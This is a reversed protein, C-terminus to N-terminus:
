LGPPWAEQREQGAPKAHGEGEEPASGTGHAGPVHDVAPTSVHASQAAPDSHSLVVAFLPLAAGHPGPNQDSAPAVFHEGHGAPLAHAPLPVAEAVHVVHRAAENSYEGDPYAAHLVRVSPLAYTAM